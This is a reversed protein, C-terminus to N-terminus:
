QTVLACPNGLACSNVCYIARNYSVCSTSYHSVLISCMILEFLKQTVEGLFSLKHGLLPTHLCALQAYVVSCSLVLLYRKKMIGSLKMYKHILHVMRKQCLEPLKRWSSEM